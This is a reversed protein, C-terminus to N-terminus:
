CCAGCRRCGSDPCPPTLEEREARERELRLYEASVSGASTFPGTRPSFPRTAEVGAALGERNILEIIDRDGRALVTQLLAERASGLSVEVGPLKRLSRGLRKMRGKLESLDLIPDAQFPTGPKPVFPSIGIRLPIVGACEGCLRVIGALDEEREGPLGVLFYLKARRLGARRAEALVRVLTGPDIEKNIRRRLDESGAEPALAIENQGGRALARLLEGSATEARLSSLSVRWNDKVLRGVLDAVEPHDSVSPSVLGVRDTSGRYIGVEAAIEASPRYRVPRYLFGAACFRCGRGCGRGTEVLARWPFVSSGCLYHVPPIRAWPDKPAPAPSFFSKLAPAYVGPLRACAELLVTRPSGACEAITKLLPPIIEEGEGRIILDAIAALPEPNLGVAAGGVLILPDAESRAAPAPELSGSRLMEPLHLLDPEYSVSFAVVDFSSFTKRKERSRVDGRFAREAHWGEVSDVLGLVSLYGLSSMGVQYLHPYLLLLCHPSELKKTGLVLERPGASRPTM